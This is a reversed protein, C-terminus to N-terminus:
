FDISTIYLNIILKFIDPVLMSLISNENYKFEFVLLSFKEAILTLEMINSNFLIEDSVPSKMKIMEIINYCKSCIYPQKIQKYTKKITKYTNSVNKTFKMEKCLICYPMDFELKTYTPIEEDNFIMIKQYSVINNQKDIYIICKADMYEKTIKIYEEMNFDFCCFSKEIRIPDVIKLQDRYFKIAQMINMNSFDMEELKSIIWEIKNYYIGRFNLLDKIYPNNINLKNNNLNISIDVKAFDSNYINLEIIDGLTWIYFSEYCNGYIDVYPVNEMQSLIFIQKEKSIKYTEVYQYFEMKTANENYKLVSKLKMMYNNMYEITCSENFNIISYFWEKDIIHPYMIIKNIDDQTLLTNGPITNYNINSPINPIIQTKPTEIYPYVNTITTIFRKIANITNKHYNKITSLQPIIAPISLHQYFKINLYKSENQLGDTYCLGGENSYINFIYEKFENASRTNFDNHEIIYSIAKLILCYEKYYKFALKLLPGENHTFNSPVLIPIEKCNSYSNLFKPNVNIIEFFKFIMQEIDLGTYDIHELLQIEEVFYNIETFLHIPISRKKNKTNKM